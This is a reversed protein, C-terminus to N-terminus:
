GYVYNIDIYVEFPFHQEENIHIELPVQCHMRIIEEVVLPGYLEGCWMLIFTVLKLLASDYTDMSNQNDAIKLM